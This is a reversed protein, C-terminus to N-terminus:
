NFLPAQAIDDSELVLQFQKLTAVPKAFLRKAYDGLAKKVDLTLAAVFRCAAGFDFCMQRSEFEATKPTYRSM